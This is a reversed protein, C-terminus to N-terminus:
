RARRRQAHGRAADGFARFLSLSLPDGDATFEAHWQVGLAFAKAGSVSLGEITTDTALAEIATGPAQQAVGQGHLSNVSAETFGAIGELVGGPTISISHVPGMQEEFPKTRDRRHDFRGPLEHLYQHLTGGLAVNLEQMGRCIAFVPVGLDIAGRILPLSTADRMPDHLDGNRSPAGGYHRPEVNSAGGTLLLGDLGALTDRVDLKDGIAPIILPTAGADNAVAQINRNGTVHIEFGDTDRYSAPIGVVPRYKTAETM